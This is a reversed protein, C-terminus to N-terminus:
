TPFPAELSLAVIFIIDFSLHIMINDHVTTTEISYYNNVSSHFFFFFFADVVADFSKTFLQSCMKNREGSLTLKNQKKTSIYQPMRCWNLEGCEGKGKGRRVKVFASKKLIFLTLINRM